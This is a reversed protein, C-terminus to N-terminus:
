KETEHESAASGAEIAQLSGCATGHRFGMEVSNLHGKRDSVM